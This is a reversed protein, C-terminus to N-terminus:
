NLGVTACSCSGSEAPAAFPRQGGDGGGSDKEKEEGADPTGAGGGDPKGGDPKGGDPKGADPTGADPIESEFICQGGLCIEGEPCTVGFCPDEVCQGDVCTRGWPCGFDICKDDVCNGNECTKGVGCSKGACPDDICAGDVCKEAAKCAVGACSKVCTGDRCFEGTGCNKDKCPDAVCKEDKCVEGADCGMVYCTGDLCAGHRCLWGNPCAMGDCPDICDGNICITPDDCKIDICPGDTVCWDDRCARGTPCEGQKCRFVCEGNLCVEGPPCLEGEDVEGNCNNDIADCVEPPTPGCGGCANNPTPADCTSPEWKGEICYERGSGCENACPRALGDGNADKDTNGDCDNDINDCIEGSPQYLQVCKLEGGECRWIGASCIGKKGTDCPKNEDDSYHATCNVWKGNECEETGAAGCAGTCPRSLGDDIDGNCDNDVGDCIEKPIVANLIANLSNSLTAKDTAYFAHGNPDPNGQDNISTGGARAMADLTASGSLGAGFGVVFTKVEYYRGQYEVARVQQVAGVADGGCTEEGDTILLVFHGRCDLKADNPFVKVYEERATALAGALPTAGDARLEKNTDWVETNDMWKQIEAANGDAIPVILQGGHTCNDKGDYNIALGGYASSSPNIGQGEAQYYRMLGFGIKQQFATVVAAVADKAIYMRSTKGQGNCPAGNSGDCNQKVGAPDKTMSGSTDFVVLVYPNISQAGAAACCLCLALAAAAGALTTRKITM